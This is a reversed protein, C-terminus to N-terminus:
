ETDTDVNHGLASGIVAGAIAGPPGLLAGGLSAGVIGGIIKNDRQKENKKEKSLPAKKFGHKARASRTSSNNKLNNCIICAPLLNRMYNTGAKSKPKSHDIEWCGRTDPIGYNKFTLKKHCIHCRGDTKKFITKKQELTYGM